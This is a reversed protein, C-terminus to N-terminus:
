LKLERKIRRRMMQEIIEPCNYDYRIRGYSKEFRISAEFGEAIIEPNNTEVVVM